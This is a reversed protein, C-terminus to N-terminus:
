RELLESALLRRDLKDMTTLPLSDRLVLAEPLKYTALGGKGFERLDELTPPAAADDPVVVAVGVEGLVDDPRAIVAVQAVAPHALLVAEVEGPHVNYGGRIYMDTARGTLRLRGQEDLVGLDGTHLWGDADLTAATREADRWYSAMVAGSRLLVVGTGEEVAVEVGGRGRGVTHLAEEDDADFATGTGCGGCETSSYRNSYAAGFRRRAEHVLPAPSPGGGMVITQVCDLDYTDFDPQRMMLGIHASIGGISPIRERATIRLADEPRWRSLLHLRSGTRVYWALKTSVGIHAFQTSVLIPGGGGWEGARPGLDIGVIADINRERFEAGKPEGTTGSTFVVVCPREPDPAPIAVPPAGEVRLAFADGPGLVLDAALRALVPAQEAAALRPNVGSYLAGLKSAAAAAVIWEPTSEMQLGVVSRDGIGAVALGAAVEDSARDVEAYTWPAGGEPALLVCGGFRTAAERLTRGLVTM